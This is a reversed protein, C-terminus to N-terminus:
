VGFNGDNHTFIIVENQIINVKTIKWSIPDDSFTVIFELDDKQLGEMWLALHSPSMNVLDGRFESVLEGEKTEAFFVLSDAPVILGDLKVGVFSTEPMLLMQNLVKRPAKMKETEQYITQNSTFM